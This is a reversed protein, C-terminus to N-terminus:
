DMFEIKVIKKSTPSGFLRENLAGKTSGLKHLANGNDRLVVIFYITVVFFSAMVVSLYDHHFLRYVEQTSPEVICLELASVASFNNV